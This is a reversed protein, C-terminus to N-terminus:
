RSNNLPERANIIACNEYVANVSKASIVGVLPGTDATGGTAIVSPADIALNKVTGSNTGIMALKFNKLDVINGQLSLGLITHGQGDLTGEFTEIMPPQESLYLDNTLAFSKDGTYKENGENLLEAFLIYDAESSIQYPSQQTGEGNLERDVTQASAILSMTNLTGAMISAAFLFSLTRKLKRQCNKM